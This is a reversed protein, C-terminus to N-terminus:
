WSLCMTPTVIERTIFSTATILSRSECPKILRSPSLMRSTLMIDTDVSYGILMLLAGLSALSFEIGFVQMLALTVIIDSAASIIIALSPVFTRFVIFAIIGMLIFAIIIGTQAQSWFLNGLSPGINEISYDLIVIGSERLKGIAADYDASADIEISAGREGFDLINIAAERPQMRGFNDWDIGLARCLITSLVFFHSVVVVVGEPHREVIQRVAGWAREQVEGLSEGGPLCLSDRKYRWEKLFDGYRQGMEKLSLGEMEGPDLERFAPEQRVELGHLRAIERATHLARKLPSSYAATLGEGALALAVRHAQQRGNEGLEIDSVGQVRGEENWPTEGHRVLILRLTM